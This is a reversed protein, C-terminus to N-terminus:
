TLRHYFSTPRPEQFVWPLFVFNIKKGAENKFFFQQVFNLKSLFIESFGRVWSIQFNRSALGFLEIETSIFLWFNSLLSKEKNEGHTWNQLRPANFIFGYFNIFSSFLKKKRLNEAVILDKLFFLERGFGSLCLYFGDTTKRHHIAHFWYVRDHYRSNTPYAPSNGM